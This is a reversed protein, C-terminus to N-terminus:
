KAFKSHPHLVRLVATVSEPIDEPYYIPLMTGQKNKYARTEKAVGGNGKPKSKFTGRGNRAM